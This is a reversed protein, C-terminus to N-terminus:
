VSKNISKLTSLYVSEPIPISWTGLWNLSEVCMLKTLDAVELRSEHEARVFAAKRLSEMDSAVRDGLVRQRDTVKDLHAMTKRARTFDGSLSAAISEATLRDILGARYATVRFCQENAELAHASLEATVRALIKLKDETLARFAAAERYEGVLIRRKDVLMVVEDEAAAAAAGDRAARTLRRRAGLSKYWVPAACAM